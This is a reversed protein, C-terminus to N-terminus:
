RNNEEPEHSKRRKQIWELLQEQTPQKGGFMARFKERLAMADHYYKKSYRRTRERSCEPSCVMQTSTSKKSFECGCITCDQVIISRSNLVQKKTM